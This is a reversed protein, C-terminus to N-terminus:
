KNQCSSNDSDRFKCFCNVSSSCITLCTLQLKSIFDNERSIEQYGSNCGSCCGQKRIVLCKDARRWLQEGKRERKSSCTGQLNRLARM